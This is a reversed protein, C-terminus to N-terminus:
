WGWGDPYQVESYTIPIFDVRLLLYDGIDYFIRLPHLYDIKLVGTAGNQREEETADEFYRRLELGNFRPWPSDSDYVWITDDWNRATDNEYEYSWAIRIWGRDDTVTSTDDFGTLVVTAEPDVRISRPFLTDQYLSTLQEEPWITVRENFGDFTYAPVMHATIRATEEDSPIRAGARTFHTPAGSASLGTLELELERDLPLNEITVPRSDDFQHTAFIVGAVRVEVRLGAYEEPPDNIREAFTLGISLSGTPVIEPEPLEGPPPVDLPSYDACGAILGPLGLALVAAFLGMRKM